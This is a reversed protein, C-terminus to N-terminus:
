LELIPWRLKEQNKILFFVLGMAYIQAHTSLLTTSNLSVKLIHAYAGTLYAIFLVFAFFM